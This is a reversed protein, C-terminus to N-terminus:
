ASDIPIQCLFFVFFMQIFFTSTVKYRSMNQEGQTLNSSCCTVLKAVKRYYKVWLSHNAACVVLAIIGVFSVNV